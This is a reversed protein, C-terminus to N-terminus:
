KRLMCNKNTMKLSEEYLEEYVNQLEDFSNSECHVKNVEEEKAALCVNAIEQDSSEDDSTDIDSERQAVFARKFKEIKGKSIKKHKRSDKRLKLCDIKKYESKQM